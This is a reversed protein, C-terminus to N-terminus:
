IDRQGFHAASFTDRWSVVPRDHKADCPSSGIMVPMVFRSALRSPADCLSRSADARVRRADRVSQGCIARMAFRGTLCALTARRLQGFM